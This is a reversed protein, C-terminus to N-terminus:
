LEEVMEMTPVARQALFYGGSLTLLLMGLGLLHRKTRETTFDYATPVRMTTTHMPNTCCTHRLRALVSCRPHWVRGIRAWARSKRILILPSHDAYFWGAAPGAVKQTVSPSRSSVRAPAAGVRRAIM